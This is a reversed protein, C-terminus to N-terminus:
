MSPGREIQLLMRHSLRCKPCVPERGQASVTHEGCLADGSMHSQIRCRSLNPRPRPQFFLRLPFDLETEHHTLETLVEAIVDTQIHVSDIKIEGATRPSIGLFTCRRCSYPRSFHLHRKLGRIKRLPLKPCPASPSTISHPNPHLPSGEAPEVHVSGM